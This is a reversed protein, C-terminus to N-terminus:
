VSAALGQLKMSLGSPSSNTRLVPESSHHNQTKTYPTEVCGPNPGLTHGDWQEGDTTNIRLDTHAELHPMKLTGFQCIKQLPHPMLSSSFFAPDKFHLAKFFALLNRNCNLTQPFDPLQSKVLSAPYCKFTVSQTTHSEHKLQKHLPSSPSSSEFLTYWFVTDTEARRRQWESHVWIVSM